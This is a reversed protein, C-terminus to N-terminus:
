RAGAKELIAVIEPCNAARALELPPRGDPTTRGVDAGANVLLGVVEIHGATCADALLAERLATRGANNAADVPVANTLLRRAIASYGLRAALHLSTNGEADASQLKAGSNLMVVLLSDDPGAESAALLFASLGRGDKLNVDAGWQTLYRVVDLQRARTAAILPTRGDADGGNIQGGKVLLHEVEALDGAAAAKVLDLTLADAVVAAHEEDPREPGLILTLDLKWAKGESQARVVLELPPVAAAGATYGDWAVFPARLRVEAQGKPEFSLRYWGLERYDPLYIGARVEKAPKGGGGLRTEVSSVTAVLPSGPSTEGLAKEAWDRTDGSGPDFLGLRVPGPPLVGSPDEVVVSFTSPYAATGCGALGLTGLLTFLGAFVRRM